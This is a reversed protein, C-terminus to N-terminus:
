KSFWVIRSLKKTQSNFYLVSPKHKSLVYQSLPVENGDLYANADATLPIKIEDCDDCARTKVFGNLDKGLYFAHFPGEASRELFKVESAFASQFVFLSVLALIGTLKKM